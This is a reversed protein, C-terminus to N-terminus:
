LLASELVRSVHLAHRNTGLAIQQRCSTGDAIILTAEDAARVRPWLALEAMQESVAEHKADYGFSGAMGCCSSDITEVTLEPVLALARTVDPV